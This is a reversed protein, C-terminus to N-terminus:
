HNDVMTLRITDEIKLNKACHFDLMSNINAVSKTNKLIFDNCSVLYRNFNYFVYKFAGDRKGIVLNVRIKKRGTYIPHERDCTCLVCM